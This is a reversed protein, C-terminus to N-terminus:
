ESVGTHKRIIEVAHKPSICKGDPACECFDTVNEIETIASQIGTVPDTRKDECYTMADDLHGEIGCVEKHMCDDCYNM